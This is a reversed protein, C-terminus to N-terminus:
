IVYKRQAPQENRVQRRPRGRRRNPFRNQETPDVNLPQLNVEEAAMEIPEGPVREAVAMEIPEDPVREVTMVVPDDPIREIPMEVPRQEAIQM